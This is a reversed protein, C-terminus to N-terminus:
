NMDKAIITLGFKKPYMEVLAGIAAEASGRIQPAMEPSKKVDATYAHRGSIRRHEVTIEKTKV